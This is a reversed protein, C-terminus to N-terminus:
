EGHSCDPILVYLGSEVLTAVLQAPQDHLDGTPVGMIYNGEGVYRVCATEPEREDAVAEEKRRAM